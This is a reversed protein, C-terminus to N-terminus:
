EGIPNNKDFNEDPVLRELHENHARQWYELLESMGNLTGRGFILQEWCESEIVSWKVKEYLFKKIDKELRPFVASITACYDKREQETMTKDKEIESLDISGLLKRMLVIDPKQKEILQNKIMDFEVQNFDEKKKFLYKIKEIINRFM